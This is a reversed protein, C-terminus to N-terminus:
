MLILLFPRVEDDQEATKHKPRPKQEAVPDNRRRDAHQRRDLAQLHRRRHGGPCDDGDGEENEGGQKGDLMVSRGAHAADEARDQEEPKGRDRRQAHPLDRQVRLDQAGEVGQVSQGKQLLRARVLSEQRQARQHEHHRAALGHIGIEAM